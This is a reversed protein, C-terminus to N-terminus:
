KVERCLPSKRGALQMRVNIRSIINVFFFNNKELYPKRKRHKWTLIDAKHAKSVM